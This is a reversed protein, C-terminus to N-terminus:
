PGFPKTGEGRFQLKSDWLLRRQLNFSFLYLKICLLKNLILRTKKIHPICNSWHRLPNFNTRLTQHHYDINSSIAPLNRLGFIHPKYVSCYPLRSLCFGCFMVNQSRSDKITGLDRNNLIKWFLFLMSYKLPVADNKRIKADCKCVSVKPM